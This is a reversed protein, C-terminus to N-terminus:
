GGAPFLAPPLPRARSSWLDKLPTAPDTAALQTGLAVTRLIDTLADAPIAEPDVRLAVSTLGGRVTVRVDFPQGYQRAVPTWVLEAPTREHPDPQERDFQLYNFWTRFLHNFWCGEDPGVGSATGLETVRDFDYSSYRYAKAAAWHVRRVHEDLSAAGDVTIPVPILQNITGVARQLDPAFRNSSMLSMSVRGTDLHRALGAAVFAMVVAPVTVGHRGAALAALGGLSRSHLTAQIRNREAGSALTPLRHMPEEALIRNWYRDAIHTDDYQRRVLDRPSPSPPVDFWPDGVLTRFQDELHKISWVDVILHSFSLALFRPIGGTTVMRGRWGFADTAEIPVGVLEDKTRDADGRDTLERDIREVQPPVGEHVRQVPVGGQLHYTTRLAENRDVLGQLAATVAPLSLGRLSWATGLNAEHMWGSPYTEIERWSYLQGHNLPADSM